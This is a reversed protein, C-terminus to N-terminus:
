TIALIMSCQDTLPEGSARAPITRRLWIAQSDGASLTFVLQDTVSVGSEYFTVGSPATFEDAITQATNVESANMGMFYQASNPSSEVVQMFRYTHSTDSINKFFICRYSTSGTTTEATATDDFVNQSEFGVSVSETYTGLVLSPYDVTVVLYNSEDCFIAYTGSETVPFTGVITGITPASWQIEAHDGQVDVFLSGTGTNANDGIAYEISVGAVTTSVYAAPKGRVMETSLAGGLALEPDANSSGGSLFLMPFDAHGYYKSSINIPVDCLISATDQAEYAVISGIPGAALVEGAISSIDLYEDVDIAAYKNSDLIPSYVASTVASSSTSLSGGTSDHTYTTDRVFTFDSTCLSTTCLSTYDTLTRTVRDMHYTNHLGCDSPIGGVSISLVSSYGFSTAGKNGGLIILENTNDWEASVVRFGESYVDPFDVAWCFTGEHSIFTLATNNWAASTNLGGSVVLVGWDGCVVVNPSTYSDGATFGVAWIPTFNSDYRILVDTTGGVDVAHYIDDQYAALPIHCTRTHKDLCVLSMKRAWQFYGDTDFKFFISIDNVYEMAATYINGSSDRCMSNLGSHVADPGSTTARSRWVVAPPSPPNTNSYCMLTQNRGSDAFGATWSVFGSEHSHLAGGCKDTALQNYRVYTVSSVGSINLGSSVYMYPNISSEVLVYVYSGIQEADFAPGDFSSFGFRGWDYAISTTVTNRAIYVYDATEPKCKGLNWLHGGSLKLNIHEHYDPGSSNLARSEILNGYSAGYGVILKTNTFSIYDGGNGMNASYSEFVIRVTDLGSWGSSVQAVTELTLQGSYSTPQTGGNGVKTISGSTGLRTAGAYFELHFVLTDNDAVVFAHTFSVLANLVSHSGSLDSSAVYTIAVDTSGASGALPSSDLTGIDSYLSM